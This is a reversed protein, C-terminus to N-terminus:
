EERYITQAYVTIMSGGVSLNYIRKPKRWIATITYLSGNEDYEWVDANDREAKFAEIFEKVLAKNDIASFEQVRKIIEGTQPDRKVASRYTIGHRNCSIDGSMLEDIKQQASSQTIGVVLLAVIILLKKM